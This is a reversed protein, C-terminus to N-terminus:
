GNKLTCNLSMLYLIWMTTCVDGGDMELVKKNKRVSIRSMSRIGCEGVGGSGQFWWEIKDKSKVIRTDRLLPIM